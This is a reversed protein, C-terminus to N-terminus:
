SGIIKVGLEVFLLETIDKEVVSNGYCPYETFYPFM